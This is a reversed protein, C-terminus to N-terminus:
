TEDSGGSPEENATEEDVPEQMDLAVKKKRSPRSWFTLMVVSLLICVAFGINMLGIIGSYKDMVRAGALVTIKDLEAKTIPVPSMGISKQMKVYSYVTAFWLAFTQKHKEADKFAQDGNKLGVLNAAWGTKESLQPLPPKVPLTILEVLDGLADVDSSDHINAAITRAKSERESAIKRADLVVMVRGIM